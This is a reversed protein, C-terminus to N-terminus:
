RVLSRSSLSDIWARTPPSTWDISGAMRRRAVGGTDILYTDPLSGVGLRRALEGAPDRAIWPPVPGPAFHAELASWPEDSVAMVRVNQAEQALRGLGPLEHRCAACWTAWFHLITPQGLDHSPRQGGTTELEVPPLRLPTIANSPDHAVSTAECALALSLLALGGILPRGALVNRRIM